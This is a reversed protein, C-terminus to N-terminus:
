NKQEVLLIRLSIILLTMITSSKRYTAEVDLQKSKFLSEFRATPKPLGANKRKKPLHLDKNKRHQFKGGKRKKDKTCLVVGHGKGYAHGQYTSLPQESSEYVADKLSDGIKSLATPDTLPVDSIHAKGKNE